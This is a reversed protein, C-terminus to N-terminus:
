TWIAILLELVEALEIQLNNCMALIWHLMSTPILIMFRRYFKKSNMLLSEVAGIATGGGPEMAGGVAVVDCWCPALIEGAAV